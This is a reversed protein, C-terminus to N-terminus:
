WLSALDSRIVAVEGKCPCLLTGDPLVQCLALGAANVWDRPIFFHRHITDTGGNIQATCVWVDEDLVVVRGDPLIGIVQDIVELVAPSISFSAMLQLDGIANQARLGTLDLESVRKKWTRDPTSTNIVVVLKGLDNNSFIQQVQSNQCYDSPALLSETSIEDKTDLSSWTLVHLKSCSVYLLPESDSPHREWVGHIEPTLIETVMEGTPLRLIQTKEWASILLLEGTQDFLIQKAAGRKPASKESFVQIQKVALKPSRTDQDLTIKKVTVRGNWTVYALYDYTPSWAVQVVGMAFTSKTVVHKFDRVMDYMEVRGDENGYAILRLSSNPAVATIAPKGGAHAESAAFSFNTSRADDTDSWRDDGGSCSSSDSDNWARDDILRLLCNPEWVNCYLGRLDYFLRSDPSFCIGQIIDESTLKYILALSYFDYIKVAGKVDGTAFISGNPSCDIESPTANADVDVAKIEDVTDETPSWKFINGDYYIGLVFDNSPHWTVKM